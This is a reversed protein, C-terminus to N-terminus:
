VITCYRHSAIRHMCTQRAKPQKRPPSQSTSPSLSPSSIPNSIPTGPGATIGQVATPAPSQHGAILTQISLTLVCMFPRIHDFAKDLRMKMYRAM